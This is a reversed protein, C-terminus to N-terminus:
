KHWRTKDILIMENREIYNLNIADDADLRTTILTGSYNPLKQMEDGGQQIFRHGDLDFGMGTSADIGTEAGRVAKDSATHIATVERKSVPVLNLVINVLGELQKLAAFAGDHSSAVVQRGVNRAFHHVAIDLCQQRAERPPSFVVPQATM